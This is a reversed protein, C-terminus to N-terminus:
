DTSDEVTKEIEALFDNLGELYGRRDALLFDNHDGQIEWLWKPERAAAYNREAHHFGILRDDRSHAILVPVSVSPLKSRTDFRITSLWRVPLFPFLEAGIDPISTFSNLLVIGGLSERLALETVVGGGLSEGLAIIHPAKFGRDRLWLYGAQADLYLGEESPRGDSLGYGRYELLFVSAGTELLLDAHDLRHSINGANGHCLLFVFHERPSGPDAPYFWAHLRMGDPAHLDTIDEFPRSLEAGTTDLRSLPHYVQRYEFWRLMLYLIVLWVALRLLTRWWANRTKRKPEAM